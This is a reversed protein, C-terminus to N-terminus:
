DAKLRQKRESLLHMAYYLDVDKKQEPAAAQTSAAQQPAKVDVHMEDITVAM